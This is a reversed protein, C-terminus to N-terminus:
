CIEEWKNTYDKKYRVAEIKFNNSESEIHQELAKLCSTCIKLNKNPLKVEKVQEDRDLEVKCIDCYRKFM